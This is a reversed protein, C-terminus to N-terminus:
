KKMWNMLKKLTNKTVVLFDYDSIYEYVIGDRGTYRHEVHNGKAYSGFLIIKEPMAIEKIIDVVQLIQEQKIQPLYSLSTKM